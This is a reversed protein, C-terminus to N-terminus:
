RYIRWMSELITHLHSYKPKWGLTTEAKISSAVVKGVDGKRRKIIEYPIPKGTVEKATEIVELVSCGDESGLNLILTGGTIAISDAALIHAEALDTVHIYDRVGTGDPTDYDDGFVHLHHRTRAAVEMVKPLLNSPNREKGTIDGWISYGAANFYRLAAYRIGEIKSNWQLLKEVMLKSEGYFNAPNTPHSETLPLELPTGYVAASSSFVINQCGFSEMMSLINITGLINDESFERVGNPQMSAGANKKGAFHFVCDYAEARVLDLLERSDTIDGYKFNYKRTDPAVIHSSLNDYVTVKHGRECLMNTVHSGIYGLGGFVLYNKM